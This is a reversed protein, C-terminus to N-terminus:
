QGRRFINASLSGPGLVQGQRIRGPMDVRMSESNLNIPQPTSEYDDEIYPAEVTANSTKNYRKSESIDKPLDPNM